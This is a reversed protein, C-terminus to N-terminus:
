SILNAKKHKASKERHLLLLVRVPDAGILPVLRQSTPAGLRRNHPIVQM